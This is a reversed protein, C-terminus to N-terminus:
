ATTLEAIGSNSCRRESTGARHHQMLPHPLDSLMALPGIALRNVPTSRVPPASVTSLGPSPPTSSGRYCAIRPVTASGIAWTSALPMRSICPRAPAPRQNMPKTILVQQCIYAHPEKRKNNGHAEERGNEDDSEKRKKRGATPKPSRSGKMHGRYSQKERSWPKLKMSSTREKIPLLKHRRLGTARLRGRGMVRLLLLVVVSWRSCGGIVMTDHLEDREDTRKYGGHVGGGGGGGSGRGRCDVIGRSCREKDAIISCPVLTQMSALKPPYQWVKELVADPKASLAHLLDKGFGTYKVTQLLVFYSLM